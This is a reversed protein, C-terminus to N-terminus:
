MDLPPENFAGKHLPPQSPTLRSQPLSRDVGGASLAVEGYVPSAKISRSHFDDRIRVAANEKLPLM